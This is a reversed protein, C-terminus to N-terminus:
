KWCEVLVTFKRAQAAVDAPALTKESLATEYPIGHADLFNRAIGASIAFNVNQPIDGTVLAIKLASLKAVVVGVVNGSLDLLPGGSNGQQVPATIQLIRRDNGPGALASVNGTTINLDTALVEHLPFGAVIIMDGPRVGRGGRFSAFGKTWRSGKLLALDNSSDHAIVQVPGTAPIRVEGCGAVVHDNTMVEGNSSIVFGTGTAYKKLPSTTPLSRQITREAEALRLKEEAAQRQAEAAKRDAEAKRRRRESEELQKRLAQAEREHQDAKQRDAVSPEDKPAPTAQEPITREPPTKQDAETDTIRALFAAPVALTLRDNEALIQCECDAISRRARGMQCSFLAKNKAVTLHTSRWVLGWTRGAYTGLRSASWAVCVALAKQTKLDRYSTNRKQQEGRSALLEDVELSQSQMRWGKALAVEVADFVEQRIQRLLPTDEEGTKQKAKWAAYERQTNDAVAYTTPVFGLVALGIAVAVSLFRVVGFIM